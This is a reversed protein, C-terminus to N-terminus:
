LKFEISSKTGKNNVVTFTGELQEVLMDVITLGFGLSKDSLIKEDMGVGNDQIIIIAKNEIKEISVSVMGEESNKFAYKFVNTLLENIIIGISVAKKADIEFDSFNKQIIINKEPDFFVALSDILNDVYNKISIVDLDKSLLLKEYLVRMSQVRSIADHLATRVEANVKSGAQLSLLGEITAINNKVRHHVERLLTEKEALQRQIEVEARKSETIDRFEVTRVNKGKYPVNRAELRMPFRDGNKRIGNAEYPKEYGSVIKNMVMERHEPAILLLGDMGILEEAFYGTMASLGQNCELIIGKDHIAIGGFSANHLAEFRESSEALDMQIQKRDTIDRCFCVFYTGDSRELRSVSIEVDLLSGDKRRHKTEFMESGNEMIRRKRVDSKESTELADLDTITMKGLEENSYGSMKCYAANVDTIRNDPTVVWFGDPTTDIIRELYQKQHLLDQEVRFRDTIDQIAFVIRDIRDKRDHLPAGNISLIKRGVHPKNIAHVINYVAKGSSMVLSFPLNEEPFPSGDVDTILWDPSNYSLDQMNSNELGLLDKANHNAFFIKGYSDVQTIAIPGDDIIRRSLEREQRLEEMVLEREVLSGILRASSKIRKKAYEIIFQPRAEYEDRKQRLVELPLQYLDSLRKLENDDEPPNGYGFNIAGIVEGKVRVPIAYLGIGGACEIDVPAGRKICKESADRWCSEHCLWKGCKLAQEDSMTGCLKRSAADLLQCWGSSFLGLAYDGNKEYVASATDLLDLYESTIEILQEKGLSSLILGKKNFETLDGYAPLYNKKKQKKGSLMWEISNFKEELQKREIVRGLREAVADLLKREEKLFPGEHCLPKEERYCVTIEGEIIGNVLINSSLCWDTMTFHTTQFIQDNLSIRADCIMPYQWSQPLIEIAEKLIDKLQIDTKEMIESIKYFCNLEKLREELISDKEYQATVDRFVLVVGIIVDVSTTIPAASDAIHYKKGDKSLLMTHNALGAVAGTRMVLEVPNDVREGTDSNVICFVEDLKKGYAETENWGCLREAVPNMRVIRGQTDTSIVGDGISNLTIRLNNEEAQRQQEAVKFATINVNFGYWTVSGDPLKEPTSRSLIWQEGKGPILVRFECTFYSLSKASYEIEEIVRAADQPHLVRSIAEFNDRVDEPSCGFVNKVGESAIPVFYSGDPRRTFQYILDPVNAFLKRMSLDMEQIKETARKREALENQLKKNAEFLKFAMKISTDLVVIGSNKVVYGYSTIKETKEVIEPETHSSLFVVPIDRHTLIQEAAETGNIGSGLDIDMLILDILIVGEQIMNVAKEGRTVHHVIYGYKELERKEMMAIIVEDEVLLITRKGDNNM